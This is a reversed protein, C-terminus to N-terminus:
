TSTVSNLNQKPISLDWRIGSGENTSPSAQSHSLESSGELSAIFIIFSSCSCYKCSPYVAAPMRCASADQQQLVPQQAKSCVGCTSVQLRSEVFRRGPKRATPARCVSVTSHWVVGIGIGIRCCMM